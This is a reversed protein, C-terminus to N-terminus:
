GTRARAKPLGIWRPTRKMYGAYDPGHAALLAREEGGIQINASWLFLLPAIVTPLSPAALAIGGLLTAQGLFTPNRSLRFLGTRVLAGTEGEVVGVRWSAGMNFQAALALAAGALALGAGAFALGPPPDDRGTGPFALRFLPWLAGLAFAARFGFAAAREKGIMAGFLWVRRGRRMAPLAGILFLALYALGITPATWFPPPTM